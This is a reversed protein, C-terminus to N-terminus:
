CGAPKYAVGISPSAVRPLTFTTDQMTLTGTIAYGVVPKYDYTAEAVVLSTNPTKLGAPLNFSSGTARGSTNKAVSWSVKATGAGDVMVSSITSKLKSADLPVMIAAGLEFTNNMYTNDVCKMQAVLDSLTSATQEAKRRATVAETIDIGGFLLLVLFPTLMAFEVAAAATDDRAFARLWHRNGNM